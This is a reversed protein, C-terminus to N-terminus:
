KREYVVFTYDYPNSEDKTHNERKIEVWINKDITPFFTDADKFTAKIETIYLKNAKDIGQKYIEAGGIIFVEQEIEDKVKEIAEELSHTIEIGESQFSKDRTIIINRRNPLPRGISEFTKRGMIVTHGRTIERFYKMDEPMNWLLANNQGIENNEGIAVIISLKM